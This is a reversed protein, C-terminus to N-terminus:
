PPCGNQMNYACTQVGPLPRDCVHPLSPPTYPKHAKPNVDLRALHGDWKAFAGQTPQTHFKGVEKATHPNGCAEASGCDCRSYPRYADPFYPHDFGNFHPVYNPQTTTQSM